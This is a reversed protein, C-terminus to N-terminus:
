KGTDAAQVMAILPPFSRPFRPYFKPSACPDVEHHCVQCHRFDSADLNNLCDLRVWRRLMDRDDGNRCMQPVLDALCCAFSTAVTEEALGKCGTSQNLLNVFAELWGPGSSGRGV